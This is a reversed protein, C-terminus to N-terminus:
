QLLIKNSYSRDRTHLTIIYVGLTLEPLSIKMTGGEQNPPRQSIISKGSTDVLTLQEIVDNVTNKTEIILENGNTFAFFGSEEHGAIGVTEEESVFVWMAGLDDDDEIGGVLATNGDASLSVSWGQIAPGAAGTGVLKDGQQEWVGDARTYVWTAGQNSNDLIGGVIARDGDGSLSVSVGQNTIGVADSGLLKDGQQTWAADSREYVWAAGIGGNDGWGGVIATNGDASLSVANGQRAGFPDNNVDSGTLKPGQQTWVGENRTFVWAAGTFEDDRSGGILATNGDASLSVAVGQAAFNSAVGSGVLKSGQQTWEGNTRTFVWAAGRFNNDAPGGFIATNGDASLGTSFGQTVNGTAGTGILKDGQQAWTGETRTFVWVAGTNSDDNKGGVLATNGDASISVTYGQLAAGIAGAGVLKDGQQTWVGNTRTYVWVAGIDGNDGFGGVLATNGDASVSVSSGQVTGGVAGTGVLKDGQQYAPYLTPTVTFDSAAAVTGTTTSVSVMGSVAGPMVMGVLNNDTNSVAIASVEGITVQILGDLNTGDISVLTGVPGSTPTFSSITPSQAISYFVTNGMIFFLVFINKFFRQSLTSMTTSKLPQNTYTLYYLFTM